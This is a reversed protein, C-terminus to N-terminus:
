KLLTLHKTEEPYVHVMFDHFFCLTTIFSLLRPDINISLNCFLFLDFVNGVKWKLSFKKPREVMTVSAPGRLPLTSWPDSALRNQRTLDRM